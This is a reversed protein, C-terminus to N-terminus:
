ATAIYEASDKRNGEVLKKMEDLIKRREEEDQTEELKDRAIIMRLAARVVESANAYAGSTVMEDIFAMNEPTLSVNM